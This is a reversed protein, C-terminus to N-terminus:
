RNACRRRLWPRTGFRWLRWGRAQAKSPGKPAFKRAFGPSVLVRRFILGKERRSSRATLPLSRPPRDRHECHRVLLLGDLVQLVIAEATLRAGAGRAAPPLACPASRHTSTGATERGRTGGGQQGESGQATPAARGGTAPAAGHQTGGGCALEAGSEPTHGQAHGPRPFAKCSASSSSFDTTAGARACESAPRGGGGM